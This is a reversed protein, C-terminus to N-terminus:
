EGEVGEAERTEDSTTVPEAEPLLMTSSVPQEKGRPMDGKVRKARHGAQEERWADLQTYRVILATLKDVNSLLTAYKPTRADTKALLLLLADRQAQLLHATKCQKASELNIREIDEKTWAAEIGGEIWVSSAARARLAMKYDRWGDERAVVYLRNVAIGTREALRALITENGHIFQWAADKYRETRKKTREPLDAYDKFQPAQDM